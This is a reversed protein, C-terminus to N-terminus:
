TRETTERIVNMTELIATPIKAPPTTKAVSSGSICMLMPPAEIFAKQIPDTATMM